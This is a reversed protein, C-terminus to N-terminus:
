TNCLESSKFIVTCSSVTHISILQKPVCNIRTNSTNLTCYRTIGQYQVLPSKIDCHFFECLLFLIVCLFFSISGLSDYIVNRHRIQEWYVMKNKSRKWVGRNVRVKFIIIVPSALEFVEVQTGGLQYDEM